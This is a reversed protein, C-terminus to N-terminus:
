SGPPYFAIGVFTQNVHMGHHQEGYTNFGVVTHQSFLDSVAQAKEQREVDLRRLIYDFALILEPKRTLQDLERKLGEVIDEARGLTLTVGPDIASMLKLAGDETREQISRVHFRDGARVLLPNSAFDFPSLDDVARGIRYAYEEAAPEANIETILREAPDASTVVMRTPTPQFHDFILEHPRFDTDLICLVASDSNVWGDSAVATRRFKLDDGASGGLVPIGHLVADVAAVLADEQQSIGDVLLIGVRSWGPPLDPLDLAWVARMCDSVTHMRLGEIVQRRMRFHAAPFVVAVVSGTAYGCSSM